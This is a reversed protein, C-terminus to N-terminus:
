VDIDSLIEDTQKGHPDNPVLLQRIVVPNAHKIHGQNDFTVLGDDISNFVM